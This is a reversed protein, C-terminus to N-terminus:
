SEHNKLEEKLTTMAKKYRWLVTGLPEDVIIAIDKFKQEEIVHLYVIDKENPPLTDLLWLYDENMMQDDYVEYVHQDDYEVPNHKRLYDISANRAMTTLYSKINQHIDIKKIKKLFKVYVDQMIDEVTMGDKIYKKITFFVQQSTEEYFRDFLKYDEKQFQIVYKSLTEM